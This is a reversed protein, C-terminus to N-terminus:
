DLYKRGAVKLADLAKTLEAYAADRGKGHRGTLQPWWHVSLVTQVCSSTAELVADSAARLEPPGLLVVTSHAAVIRELGSEIASTVNNNKQIAATDAGYPVIIAATLLDTVAARIIARRDDRRAVRGALLPAGVSFVGM